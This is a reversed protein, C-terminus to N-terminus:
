IFYTPLDFSIPNSHTMKGKQSARHFLYFLIAFATFCPLSIVDYIVDNVKWSMRSWEVLDLVDKDDKTLTKHTNQSV